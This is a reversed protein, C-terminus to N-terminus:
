KDLSVTINSMVVSSFNQAIQGWCIEFSLCLGFVFLLFSYKTMNRMMFSSAFIKYWLKILGLIFELIDLFM